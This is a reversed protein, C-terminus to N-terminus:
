IQMFITPLAQFALSWPDTKIELVLKLNQHNKLPLHKLKRLIDKITELELDTMLHCIAFKIVLERKLNLLKTALLDEKFQLM